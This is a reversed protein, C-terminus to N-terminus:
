FRANASEADIRAGMAEHKRLVASYRQAQAESRPALMAEIGGPVRRGPMMVPGGTTTTPAVAENHAAAARKRGGALLEDRRVKQGSLRRWFRKAM